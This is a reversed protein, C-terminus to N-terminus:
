LCNFDTFGYFFGPVLTTIAIQDVGKMIDAFTVGDPLVPNAFADEAGYGGWGPPLTLSGTDAVTVSLHQWGPNTIADLTGLNFWVSSYPYGGSTADTDRFEVILERSVNEGFFAISNTLVDLSFTFSPM